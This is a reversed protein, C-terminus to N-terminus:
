RVFAKDTQSINLCKFLKEDVKYQQDTNHIFHEINTIDDYLHEWHELIEELKRM